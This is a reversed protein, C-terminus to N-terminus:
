DTFGHRLIIPVILDEEDELHRDLLRALSVTEALLAGSADRLAAVPTEPTMGAGIAANARDAFRALLGDLAQHDRDLIAFGRSLQPALAELQPFYHQDEIMHHGHLEQVLMGGRGSVARALAMPELGGELAGQADAEIMELLRRFMMHRELWFSVLGDFGPDARWGERPREALLERLADPLGSRTELAFPALPDPDPM